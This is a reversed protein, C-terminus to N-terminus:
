VRSIGPSRCLWSLDLLEMNHLELSSM